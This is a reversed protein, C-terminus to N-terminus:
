SEVQIDCESWGFIVKLVALYIESDFCCMFLWVPREYM